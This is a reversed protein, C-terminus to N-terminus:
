VKKKLAEQALERAIRKSLIVSTEYDLQSNRLVQRIESEAKKMAEAEHRDGQRAKRANFTGDTSWGVEHIETGIERGSVMFSNAIETDTSTSNETRERNITETYLEKDALYLAKNMEVYSLKSEECLQRIEDTLTKTKEKVETRRISSPMGNSLQIKKM